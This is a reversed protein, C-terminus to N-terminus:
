PVSCRAGYLMHLGMSKCEGGTLGNNDKLTMNGRMTVNCDNFYIAGGDAVADAPTWFPRNFPSIVNVVSIKVARNCACLSGYFCFRHHHQIIRWTSKAM